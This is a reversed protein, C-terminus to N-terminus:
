EKWFWDELVLNKASRPIQLGFGGAKSMIQPGYKRNEGFTVYSDNPYTWEQWKETGSKGIPDGLLLLVEDQSLGKVLLSWISSGRNVLFISNPDPHYKDILNQAFELRIMVDGFLAELNELRSELIVVKQDVTIHSTTQPNQSALFFTIIAISIKM